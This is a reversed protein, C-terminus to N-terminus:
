HHAHQTDLNGYKLRNTPEHIGFWLAPEVYPQMDQVGPRFGHKDLPYFHMQKSQAERQPARHEAITPNPGVNGWIAELLSQPARKPGGPRTPAWIDGSVRWSARHLTNPAKRGPEPGYHRLLGGPAETSVTQPSGARHPGVPAWIAELFSLPASTSDGRVPQSGILTTRKTTMRLCNLLNAAM